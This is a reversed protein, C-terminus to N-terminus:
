LASCQRGSPYAKPSAGSIATRDFFLQHNVIRLQYERNFYDLIGCVSGMGEPIPEERYECSALIRVPLTDLTGNVLHRQTATFRGTAPDHDCFPLGTEEGAFRVADFRVYTSIRQPTLEGFTCPTAVASVPDSAEPQRLFRSCEGFPIRDVAYRDSPPMGLVTKGGYDGLALGNCRITLLTGLPYAAALRPADAEIWLEIGGSADEVVIAQEYEGFLDNATVRGTVALPRAVPQSDALRLTKLFAITVSEENEPPDDYALSTSRDCAAALLLLSLSVSVIRKM